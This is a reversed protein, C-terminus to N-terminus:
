NHLHQILEDERRSREAKSKMKQRVQSSKVGVLLACPNFIDWGQQLPPMHSNTELSVREYSGCCVRGVLWGRRQHYMYDSLRKRLAAASTVDVPHLSLSATNICGSGVPTKCSRCLYVSLNLFFFFFIVSILCLPRTLKIAAASDAANHVTSSGLHHQLINKARSHSLSTM